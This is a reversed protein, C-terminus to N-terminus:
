AQIKKYLDQRCFLTNIHTDAYAIYGKSQLFVAMENGKIDGKEMSFTVTEACIVEPRYRTFDLSQLIPLDMGEIDISLLNPYPDFYREMVANIPELPVKHVSEIKIGSKEQRYQAEEQSFTNWGSYPYPFIYLSAERSEGLGIGIPLITDGKRYRKLLGALAPDPEVCVGRSGRLYFYYTNSCLYPHNAGLDLYSPQAIGLEGFLYRAVQDEGAQAYSPHNKAQILHLAAKCKGAFRRWNM